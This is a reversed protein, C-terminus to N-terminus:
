FLCSEQKEPSTRGCPYLYLWSVHTILVCTLLVPSLIVWSLLPMILVEQTLLWVLVIMIVILRM